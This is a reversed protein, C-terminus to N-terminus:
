AIELRYIIPNSDGPGLSEAGQALILVDRSAPRFVAGTILHGCNWAMSPFQTGLSFTCDPRAQWPQLQGTAVAALTALGYVYVVDRCHQAHQGKAGANCDAQLTGGGASQEKGNGYWFAGYGQSVFVLLGQKDPLDIFCGARAYDASGWVGVGDAAVPGFQHTGAPCPYFIQGPTGSYITYDGPRPLRTGYPNTRDTSSEPYDLLTKSTLTLSMATAPTDVALANPGFSCHSAGSTVGAGLCLTRGSTYKQAFWAPLKYAWERGLQSSVDLSYPGRASQGSGMFDIAVLCPDAKPSVAYNGGYLAYLTGSDWFLGETTPTGNNPNVTRLGGYIATGYNKVLAARPFKLPDSGAALVNSVQLINNGLRGITFLTNSTPDYALGGYPNGETALKPLLQGGAFTFDASKVVPAIDAVSQTGASPKAPSTSVPPDFLDYQQTGISVTSTIESM